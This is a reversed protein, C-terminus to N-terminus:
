SKREGFASNRPHMHFAEQWARAIWAAALLEVMKEGLEILIELTPPRAIGKSKSYVARREIAIGNGEGDEWQTRRDEEV